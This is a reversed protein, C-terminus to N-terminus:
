ETIKTEIVPLRKRPIPPRATTTTQLSDKSRQQEKACIVGATEADTCDHVGWSDKRCDTLKAETGDCIVNDMWYRAVPPFSGM